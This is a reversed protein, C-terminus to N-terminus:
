MSYTNDHEERVVVQRRCGVTGCDPVGLDGEAPACSSPLVLVGEPSLASLSDVLQESLSRVVRQVCLCVCLDLLRQVPRPSVEIRSIVKLSGALNNPLQCPWPCPSCSPANFTHAWSSSMAETLLRFRLARPLGGYGTVCWDCASHRTASALV